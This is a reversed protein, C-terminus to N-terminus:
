PEVGLARANMKALDPHNGQLPHHNVVVFGQQPSNFSQLGLVQGVGGDQHTKGSRNARAEEVFRCFECLQRLTVGHDSASRLLPSEFAKPDDILDSRASLAAWFRLTDNLSASM